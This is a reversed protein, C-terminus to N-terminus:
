PLIRFIACRSGAVKFVKVLSAKLYKKGPTEIRWGKATRPINEGRPVRVGAVTTKRKSAM